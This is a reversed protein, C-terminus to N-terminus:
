VSAADVIRVAAERVAAVIAPEDERPGVWVASISAAPGVPAAVGHAGPLIEGTTAAWGRERAQAVEPREGAAADNAALIALGAAGSTLPHRLGLRYAIHMDTSRPEAVATVVAEDGDRVTLATTARLADALPRLEAAAAEQLRPRVRSALEILGAGLTHRGAADRAVLRADILPGLLRYVGARNTGLEAALATVSLGDPHAALVHLVRLGRELTQSGPAM